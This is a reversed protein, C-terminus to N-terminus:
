ELKVDADVNRQGLDADEGADSDSSVRPIWDMKVVDSLVGDMWSVLARTLTLLSSLSRSHPIFGFRM